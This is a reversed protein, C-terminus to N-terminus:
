AESTPLCGLALRQHIKEPSIRDVLEVERLTYSPGLRFDLLHPTIHVRRETIRREAGVVRDAMLYHIIFSM